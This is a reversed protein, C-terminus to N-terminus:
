SLVEFKYILNYLKAIKVLHRSWDAVDASDHIQQLKGLLSHDVDSLNLISPLNTFADSWFLKGVSYSEMDPRYDEDSILCGIACQLGAPGRYQCSGEFDVSKRKQTLLHKTIKDFAEQNNM